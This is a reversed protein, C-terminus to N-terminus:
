ESAYGLFGVLFDVNNQVLCNGDETEDGFLVDELSIVFSM